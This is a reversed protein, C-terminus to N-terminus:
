LRCEFKSKMLDQGKNGTIIYTKCIKNHGQGQGM